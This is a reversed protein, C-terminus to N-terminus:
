NALFSVYLPMHLLLLAACTGKGPRTLAAADAKGEGSTLALARFQAKDALTTEFLQRKSNAWEQDLCQTMYRDFAAISEEQAEQTSQFEKTPICLLFPLLGEKSRQDQM